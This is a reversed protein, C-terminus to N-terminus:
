SHKEPIGGALTPISQQAPYGDALQQSYLSSIAGKELPMDQLRRM